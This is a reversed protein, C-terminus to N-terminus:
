AAVMPASPWGRKAWWQYLPNKTRDRTAEREWKIQTVHSWKARKAVQEISWRARRRAILCAEGTSLVELPVPPAPFKETDRDYEWQKYRWPSTGLLKSAEAITLNRRRRWILLREGPSL